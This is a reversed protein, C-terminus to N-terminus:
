VPCSLASSIPLGPKAYFFSQKEFNFITSSLIDIYAIKSINCSIQRFCYGQAEEQYELDIVHWHVAKSGVVSGEEVKYTNRTGIEKEGM